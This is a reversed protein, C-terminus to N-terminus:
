EETKDVDMSGNTVSAEGENEPNLGGNVAGDQHSSTAGKGSEHESIHNGVVQTDVSGGKDVVVAASIPTKETDVNIAPSKSVNDTDAEKVEISDGAGNMGVRGAAKAAKKSRRAAAKGQGKGQKGNANTDVVFRQSTFQGPKDQSKKAAQSSTTQGNSTPSEVNQRSQLHTPKYQEPIVAGWDLELKRIHFEDFQGANRREHANWADKLWTPDHMGNSLNTVYQDCDHRFNDDNRLSQFNPRADATGPSLIHFKDPM